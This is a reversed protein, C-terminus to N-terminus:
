KRSRVGDAQRVNERPSMARAAIAAYMTRNAATINLSRGDRGSITNSAMGTKAPRPYTLTAFIALDFGDAVVV